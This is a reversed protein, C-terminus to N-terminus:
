TEAKCWEVVEGQALEIVRGLPAIIERTRGQGAVGLRWREGEVVVARYLDLAEAEDLEESGSVKKLM